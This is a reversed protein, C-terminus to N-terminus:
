VTEKIENKILNKFKDFMEKNCSSLEIYTKREEPWTHVAFHSEGILWVGSFGVPTYYYSIFGVILFGSMKLFSNFKNILSNSDTEEIWDYFNFIEAKM